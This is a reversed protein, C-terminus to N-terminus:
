HTEAWNRGIKAEAGVPARYNFAEGALKAAEVCIEAAHKAIEETRCAAQIEDHVWAMMGWDVGHVYGAETMMDFFMVVWLKSILAADSQLQLNLAAHKSRVFLKREDLGTLYGRRAEQTVKRILKGFAPIGSQLNAKLQKGRAKMEGATASPPLVISGVKLDGGGYMIAYLTTKAKDRSDIQFALMNKTHPDGDLVILVYEGDDFEALRAALCRLEIGSLDCGMQWWGPPPGFLSRCEFGFKGARGYVITKKRLTVGDDEYCYPFPKGTKPDILKKNVEGTDKDVVTLVLVKPVQAVNPSLHSARGSVTGGTNVYGHLIGDVVKALWANDGTELAGLLKSLFFLEALNEAVPIHQALTRLVDDDVVANGKETFDVPEWQYITSLRDVIQPRSNPNFEKIVIPCFPEGAVRDARLPDKYRLTKEPCVVEAWVKRSDDEGYEPRPPEKSKKKPAAWRGFHAVTETTLRIHEDRVSAALEQAKPVNFHFGFQEQLFMIHHIRHELRTAMDSWGAAKIKEWLLHTVEVDTKGYEEMEPNWTGWVFHRIEDPDTIGQERAKAERAKAYDGKHLGLRQGWAELKHQGILKGEIKGAEFLRFDGDKVNAFVMRSLVMTDRLLIDEGLRWEPYLKELVPIDYSVLNHNILVDASNIVALADEAEHNRYAYVPSAVGDDIIRILFNHVTTVQDLLGDTELDCIVERM